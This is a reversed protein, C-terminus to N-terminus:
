AWAVPAVPCVSGAYAHFLHKSHVISISKCESLNRRKWIQICVFYFKDAGFDMLLPLVVLAALWGILLWTVEKKTASLKLARYARMTCVIMVLMAFFQVWAIALCMYNM